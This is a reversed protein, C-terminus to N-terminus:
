SPPTEQPIPSTRQMNGEREHWPPRTQTIHRCTGRCNPHQWPDTAAPASGDKGQIQMGKVLTSTGLPPFEHNSVQRPLFLEGSTTRFPSPPPPLSICRVPSAYVARTLDVDDCLNHSVRHARFRLHTSFRVYCTPCLAAGATRLFYLHLYPCRVALLTASVM